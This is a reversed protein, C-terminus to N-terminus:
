RSAGDIVARWAGCELQRCVPVCRGAHARSHGSQGAIIVRTAAGSMRISPNAPAKHSIVDLLALTGEQLLEMLQLIARHKGDVNRRM